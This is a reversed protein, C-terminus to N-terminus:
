FFTVHLIDCLKLADNTHKIGRAHEMRVVNVSFNLTVVSFFRLLVIVTWVAIKFSAVLCVSKFWVIYFIFCVFRLM